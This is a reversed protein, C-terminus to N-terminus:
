KRGSRYSVFHDVQMEEHKAEKYKYHNFDNEKIKQFIKTEKKANILAEKCVQVEKEQTKIHSCQKKISVDLIKLSNSVNRYEQVKVVRQAKDRSDEIIDQRKNELISLYNKETDLKRVAVGFNYKQSDELKDKLNLISQFRYTFNSSM